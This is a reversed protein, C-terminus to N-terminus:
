PPLGLCCPQSCSVWFTHERFPEWALSTSVNVTVPCCTGSPTWDTQCLQRTISWDRRVKLLVSHICINKMKKRDKEELASKSMFASYPIGKTQNSRAQSTCPSKHMLWNWVCLSDTGWNGLRTYVTSDTEFFFTFFLFKYKKEEIQLFM